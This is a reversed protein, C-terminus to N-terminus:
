IARKVLDGKRWGGEGERFGMAMLPFLARERQAARGYYHRGLGVYHRGGEERERMREKMKQRSLTADLSPSLLLKSEDTPRSSLIAGSHDDVRLECRPSVSLFLSPPFSPCIENEVADVIPLSLSIRGGPLSRPSRALSLDRRSPAWTFIYYQRVSESQCVIRCTEPVTGALSLAFSRLGSQM